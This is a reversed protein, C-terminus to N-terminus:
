VKTEPTKRHGRTCDKQLHAAISVRWIFLDVTASNELSSVASRTGKLNLILVLVRNHSGIAASHIMVFNLPQFCCRNKKRKDTITETSGSNPFSKTVHNQSHDRMHDYDSPLHFQFPPPPVLATPTQGPM